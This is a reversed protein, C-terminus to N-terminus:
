DAKMADCIKIVAWVGLVVLSAPLVFGYVVRTPDIQTPGDTGLGFMAYAPGGGYYGYEPYAVPGSKWGGMRQYFQM